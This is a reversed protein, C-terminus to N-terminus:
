ETGDKPHWVVKGVPAEQLAEAFISPKLFQSPRIRSGARKVSDRVFFARWKADEAKQRAAALDPSDDTEEALAQVIGNAKQREQTGRGMDALIANARQLVAVRTARVAHPDQSARAAAMAEELAKPDAAALRASAEAHLWTLRSADFTREAALALERVEKEAAAHAADAVGVFAGAAEQLAREGYERIVSLEREKGEDSLLTNGQVKAEEAVLDQFAADFAAGAKDIADSM